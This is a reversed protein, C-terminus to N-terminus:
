KTGKNKPASEVAKNKPKPQAKKDETEVLVGRDILHQVDSPKAERVDGEEYWKDGQHRRMVAFKKM